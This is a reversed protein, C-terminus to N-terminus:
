LPRLRATGVADSGVLRNSEHLTSSWGSGERLHTAMTFLRAPCRGAGRLQACSPTADPAPKSGM